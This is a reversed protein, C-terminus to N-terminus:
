SKKSDNGLRFPDSRIYSTLLNFGKLRSLGEVFRSKFDSLEFFAEKQGSLLVLCLQPGIFCTYAHLFGQANFKPLCIPTWSEASQFSSSAYIMNLLLQVDPTSYSSLKGSPYLTLKHHRITTM